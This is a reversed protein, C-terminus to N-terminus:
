RSEVVRHADAGDDAPSRMASALGWRTAQAVAAVRGPARMRSLLDRLRRSVSRESLCLDVGIEALTAGTALLRLLRRDEPTVWPPPPEVPAAALARIVALPLLCQQRLGARLASVLGEPCAGWGVVGAAGAQLARVYDDRRPQPALALVTRQGGWCALRQVLAWRDPSGVTVVLACPETDRVWTSVDPPEVVLFGVDALDALVGREVSRVPPAVVVPVAASDEAM